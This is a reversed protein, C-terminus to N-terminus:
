ADPTRFRGCVCDTVTCGVDNRHWNLTHECADCPTSLYQAATKPEPQSPVAAELEAVRARLRKLEDALDSTDLHVLLTRLTAALRGAFAPYDSGSQRADWDTLVERVKAQIRALDEANGAALTQPQTM